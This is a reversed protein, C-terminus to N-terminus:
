DALQADELHRPVDVPELGTRMALNEWRGDDGRVYVYALDIGGGNVAVEWFSRGDGDTYVRAGGDWHWVREIGIDRVDVPKAAADGCPACYAQIRQQGDLAQLAAVAQRIDLYAFQDARATPPAACLLVAFLGSASLRHTM